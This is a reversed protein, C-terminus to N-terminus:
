LTYYTDFYKIQEFPNNDRDAYEIGTIVTSVGSFLIEGFVLDNTQKLLPPIAYYDPYNQIVNDIWTYRMVILSNVVSPSIVVNEGTSIKVAVSNDVSANKWAIYPSITIRRADGSYIGIQGGSYIAQPLIGALLHNFGKSKTEEKFQFTINTDYNDVNAM